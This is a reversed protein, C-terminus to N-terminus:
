HQRTFAASVSTGTSGMPREPLNGTGGIEPKVTLRVRGDVQLTKVIHTAVPERVIQRAIEM